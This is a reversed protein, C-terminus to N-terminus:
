HTYATHKHQSQLYFVTNNKNRPILLKLTLPRHNGEINLKKNTLFLMYFGKLCYMGWSKGYFMVNSLHTM